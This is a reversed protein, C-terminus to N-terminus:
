RLLIYASISKIRKMEKNKSERNIWTLEYFASRNRQAIDQIRYLPIFIYIHIYKYIHM